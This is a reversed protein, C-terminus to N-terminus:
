CGVSAAVRDAEHQLAAATATPIQKGTQAKVENKFAVIAACADAMQNAAILGQIEQVKDNLSKGPGVGQVAALLDKVEDAAPKLPADDAALRIDRSSSGVSITRSGWATVWDHTDADWYQFARPAVEITVHKRQGPALSVRDFGALSKVALPVAPSDPAGVYVQPVETGAVTGSNTVDFAITMTGVGPTLSLDSYDFTTYSLGHGFPYLPVTDHVDYWRYGQFIGNPTMDVTRYTHNGQAPNSMFVGPYLPCNGDNAATGTNNNPIVIM